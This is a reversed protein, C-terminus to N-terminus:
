IEPMLEPTGQTWMQRRYDVDWTRNSNACAAFIDCLSGGLSHGACDVRSCKALKPRLKLWFMGKTIWYVKDRYGAHVDPYGCYGTEYQKLSTSLEGAGKTGTFVLSCGLDSNSQVLWVSDKAEITDQVAHAVLRHGPLNERVIKKFGDQTNYAEFALYAMSLAKPFPSRGSASQGELMIHALRDVYHQRHHLNWDAYVLGGQMPWDPKGANPVYWSDRAWHLVVTPIFPHKYNGWIAGGDIQKSEGHVGLLNETYARLGQFVRDPRSLDLFPTASTGPAGFTYVESVIGPVGVEQGEEGGEEAAGTAASAEDGNTLVAAAEAANKLGRRQLANLGCNEGEAGAGAACEDDASLAAPVQADATTGAVGPLAFLQGLVLALLLGPKMAPM